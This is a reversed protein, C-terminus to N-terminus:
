KFRINIFGFLKMTLQYAEPRKIEGLSVLRNFTHLRWGCSELERHLYYFKIM